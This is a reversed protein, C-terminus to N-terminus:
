RALAYKFPSEAFCAYIYTSGNTNHDSTSNRIKFGNSLFDFAHLNAVEANSLNAWLYEDTPNATSRVADLIVWNDAASTRKIMVFEPRFGLYVFPGDTSGNGTYSGFASYGAVPAFCYAVFNFTSWGSGISFVTSTPATNNWITTAATSAATSNLALYNGAGISQHYVAWPATGENRAKMIILSPATGLGHGITAAGAGTFTVISFGSTTNARVQASITGSTNTVTSGGANWNWSVFTRASGNYNADTGLSFGDSNFATLGNTDTAEAATSNSILSKTAGRVADILENDTANSRSKLWVWDPQFGIGTISQTSGNGTYLVPNFYKGALTTSTAGITPTPLNTTCLAKFGSPATYAFARQGFNIIFTSNRSTNNDFDTVAPYYTGTISSFAENTGGSPSGSNQYTGNKSFWLKGNDADYAVGIIDGTTFTNGYATYTGGTGKNGTDNRYLYGDGSSGNGLHQTDPNLRDSALGIVYYATNTAQCTVEWYWKGSSIGFTARQHSFAANATSTALQL